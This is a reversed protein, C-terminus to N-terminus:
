TREGKAGAFAEQFLFLGSQGQRTADVRRRKRQHNLQRLPVFGTLHIASPPRLEGGPTM